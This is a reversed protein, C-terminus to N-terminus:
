QACVDEKWIKFSPQAAKPMWKSCRNADSVANLKYMTRHLVNCCLQMFIFKSFHLTTQKHETQKFCREKFDEHEEAKMEKRRTMREDRWGRSVDHIQCVGPFIVIFFILVYVSGVERWFLTTKWPSMLEETKLTSHFNTLSQAMFQKRLIEATKSKRDVWM